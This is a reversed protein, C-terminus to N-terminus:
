PAADDSGAALLAAYLAMGDWLAGIRLNENPAHQHNDANVMPVIVFEAGLVDKIPAIPLSGGLLPVIRIQGDSAERLVAIVRAVAPADLDSQAAEYGLESWEVRALKAHAAREDRSPEHDILDYGQAAVHATIADRVAARTLGPTLRVGITAQAEADIANRAAGSGGYTVQLVNLAPALIAEGYSAGSREVAALAGVDLMSADDFAERALAREAESPEPADIGAVLIRGDDDRMSALLRALRAGPNAAVNGFHGSHMPADPGYITIRGSMVGRVGLIARPLGRPDIPGDCFIWVDAALADAHRALTDALHPSGAEEEGEFFFKVNASLPVDADRLADLAALMAVIPAKDDSASRAYIRWDPDIPTPADEWAVAAAGDELVGARLTPEFPPSAWRDPQVPQGDFHAYMLITRTAGPTEIAGYVSVPAGPTELLRATAGRAELMAVLADANARINDENSATNPLALLARLADLIDPEHAAAYARAAATAAGVDAAQADPAGGCAALCAAAAVTMLQRM